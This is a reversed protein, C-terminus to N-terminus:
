KFNIKNLLLITSFDTQFFLVISSIIESTEELCVRVKDVVIVVSVVSKEIFNLFQNAFGCIGEVSVGYTSEGELVKM